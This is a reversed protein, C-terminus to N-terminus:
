TNPTVYYVEKNNPPLEPFLQQLEKPYLFMTILKEFKTTTYCNRAPVLLRNWLSGYRVTFFICRM